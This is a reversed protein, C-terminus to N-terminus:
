RRVMVSLSAADSREALRYRATLAANLADGPDPAGYSGPYDFSPVFVVDPWRGTRDFYEVTAVDAPGFDLWTTNTVIQGPQLLYLGPVSLVLVGTGPHVWRSVLQETAALVAAHGADTTVGAFAGSTITDHLALPPDNYLSAGFLGALVAFLLVAAAGRAVLAGGDEEVTWAWWLVVAAAFPALGVFGSAWYLSSQSVADMAMMGVVGVPLTLWIFRRLDAPMRRLDVLLAPLLFLVFGILYNGGFTWSRGDPAPAAAVAIAPLILALPLAALLRGRARAFARSPLASAIGLLAAPGFWMWVPVFWRRQLVESLKQLLHGIRGGTDGPASATWGRVVYEYTFRLDGVPTRAVLWVAFAAVVLAAGTVLPWVLRRGRSLVAFSILLAFAALVLPPDSVTGFAAAAGAIVAATRDGDRLAVLAAACALVLGLVGMTDYSVGLLNYAPALLPIAAAMLAPWAGFSGRLFRFVLVAAATGLAVYFLRLAVVFGTMGFLATWLRAFPAAVIAGMSQLGMEDGFLRAGQAFRLTAAAYYGDDMFSMGLTSRWAALAVLLVAAVAVWRLARVPSPSGEPDSPETGAVRV